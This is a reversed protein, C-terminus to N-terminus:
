TGRGVGSKGFRELNGIFDDLVYHQDRSNASPTKPIATNRTTYLRYAQDEYLLHWASQREIAAQLSKQQTSLLLHTSGRALPAELDSGTVYFQYQEQFHQNSYVEEYRGDMSIKMRPYLNWLMFEGVDFPVWLNGQIKNQRLYHMAGVPYVIDKGGSQASVRVQFSHEPKLIQGLGFTLSGLLLGCPLLIIVSQLRQSWWPNLSINIKSWSPLRMQTGLVAATLVFFPVLKANQWGKIGTLIVLIAIPIFQRPQKVASYLSASIWFLALLSYATGYVTGQAAFVDQWESIEQRPLSWASIIYQHFQIGYPTVLTALLCLVLCGAIKFTDGWRQLLLMWLGYGLLALFGLAFGGHLNVWLMMIFPLFWLRYPKIGHRFQELIWLFCAYFLISFLHCRLTASFHPMVLILMLLSSLFWGTHAATRSPLRHTRALLFVTLLLLFLKLWFLSASGFQTLLGYFLVGAGWEHDIWPANLATYSFIDRYPFGGSHFVLAGMALRGWLDLDAQNHLVLVACAAAMIALVYLWFLGPRTILHSM